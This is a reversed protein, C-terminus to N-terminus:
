EAVGWQHLNWFPGMAPNIGIKGGLRDSWLLVNPLITLPIAPVEEALIEDAERSAAVRQEEDIETDLRALAADLEDNSIRPFNYGSFDNEESPIADSGFASSLTPDPFTDILTYFAVQFDGAPAKKAFLDAPTTPNISMEFGAEEFQSQLVQLTLDRRKNGALTDVTFSARRGDKAWYGEGDKEWGDDTMLRDVEDLDREYDEFAAAGYTDLMPTFYSQAPEEIGVSGFLREVVAHRDLAHAAAERVPLTDFPFETTNIWLAELNGTQADVQASTDPIGSGIQSLAELQPSPYLADVQGSKLAQFASATDAIFQFTVKDLKPKEGWYNDNPVLTISRGRKWSDILWPGGSWDYGDKMEANRDKGELLHAPLVGYDGSFLTRWGAYPESLTVVATTADPTDVSEILDYGSKDFVNKGDRIQLATYEFDAATIPTGDSWVADPDIRYTVVQRAGDAEVTPEGALLDSPTASWHDGDKTVTFASPVTNVRMTYSGWIAGGCTGIWDACDPEQEAGIVIEGGDRVELQATDSEPLAGSSESGSCAAATVVSLAAAAVAVRRLPRRRARGPSSSPRASVHSLSIM